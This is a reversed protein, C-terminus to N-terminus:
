VRWGASEIRIRETECDPKHDNSLAKSKWLTSNKCAVIARSDGVNACYVYDGQFFCTVCTTGSFNIDMTSDFLFNNCKEYAYVLAAEPGLEIKQQVIGPLMYKISSSVTRGWVGHGDLVGFLSQTTDGAFNNIAFLSDQNEKNPKGPCKGCLTLSSFDLLRSTGKFSVENNAHIPSPDANMAGDSEFGLASNVLSLRRRRAAVSTDCTENTSKPSLNSETKKANKKTSNDAM